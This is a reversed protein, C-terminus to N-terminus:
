GERDPAAAAAAHPGGLDRHISVELRSEVRERECVCVDM